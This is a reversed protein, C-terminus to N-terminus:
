RSVPPSVQEIVRAFESSASFNQIGIRVNDRFCQIEGCELSILLDLQKNGATLRLAIAPVFDCPTPIETFSRKNLLLQRLRKAMDSSIDLSGAQIPHGAIAPRTSEDPQREWSVRYALVKSANRVVSMNEETAFLKNTVASTVQPLNRWLNTNQIELSKLERTKADIEFTVFQSSSPTSGDEPLTRDVAEWIWMFRTLGNTDSKAPGGLPRPQKNMCLTNSSYGLLGIKASAIRVLEDESVKIPGVFDEFCKSDDKQWEYTFFCDPAHFGAVYGHLFLFRYGNIHVVQAIPEGDLLGCEISRLNTHTIPLPVPLSLKKVYDALEGLVIEALRNSAPVSLPELQRGGSLENETKYMVSPRVAEPIAPSTRWFNTAPLWIEEVLKKDANVEVRTLTMNDKEPWSHDRWRIRYHPITQGFDTDALVVSPERSLDTVQCGLKEIAKRCFEVAESKNMRLTGYFESVQDPVQLTFYSHTGEYGSVHGNEYWFRCGNTLLVLGGIQDKRRDCNFRDVQAMTVPLSVPLELTQAFDSIHPMIAVLVANSYQATIELWEM